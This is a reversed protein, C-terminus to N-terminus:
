DGTKVECYLELFGDIRQFTKYISYRKNEYDLYKENQYSEADVILLMAPKHGMNGASNFEARTISLKSCFIMYPTETIIPQGIDDQQSSISILNCVDDLSVFTPNGISSKYM